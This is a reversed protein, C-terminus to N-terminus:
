ERVAQTYQIAQDRLRLDLLSLLVDMPCACRIRPDGMDRTFVQKARVLTVVVPAPALVNSEPELGDDLWRLLEPDFSDIERGLHAVLDLRPTGALDLTPVDMQAVPIGSLAFGRWEAPGGPKLLSRARDLLLDPSKIIAGREFRFRLTQPLAGIRSLTETSLQEPIVELWRTNPILEADRLSMLAARIPTQSAGIKDMLGTLPQPGDDELSAGVLLRLLEYTYNPKELAITADDRTAPREEVISISLLRRVAADFAPMVRNWEAQVTHASIVPSIVDLRAPRNGEVASAALDLIEARLDRTSRVRALQKELIHRM